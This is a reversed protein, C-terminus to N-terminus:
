SSRRISSEPSQAGNQAGSTARHGRASNPRSVPVSPGQRAQRAEIPPEPVRIDDLGFEGVRLAVAVAQARDAAGLARYANSLIEAVRGPTIGLWRGIQRNSNGNAALLLVERQRRNLPATM